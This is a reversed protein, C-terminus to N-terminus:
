SRSAQDQNISILYVDTKQDVWDHVASTVRWRLEIQARVCERDLNRVWDAQQDTLGLEPLRITASGTAPITCQTNLTQTLLCSSDISVSLEHIEIEVQFPLHNHWRTVLGALGASPRTPLLEFQAQSASVDVALLSQCKSIPFKWRLLWRGLVPLKALVQWGIRVSAIIATTEIM